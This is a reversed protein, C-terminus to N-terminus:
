KTNAPRWLKRAANTPGMDAEIWERAQLEGATWVLRKRGMSGHIALCVPYIRKGDSDIYAYGEPRLRMVRKAQESSECRSLDLVEDAEYWSYYSRPENSSVVPWAAVPLSLLSVVGRAALAAGRRELAAVTADPPVSCSAQYRIPGADFRTTMTHITVGSRAVGHLIVQAEPQPGAFSPLLSTHVNLAAAGFLNLVARPVRRALGAVILIEADLEKVFVDDTELVPVGQADCADRLDLRWGGHYYRHESYWRPHGQVEVGEFPDHDVAASALAVVTPPVGLRLLRRVVLATFACQGVVAFRPWHAKALLPVITRTM